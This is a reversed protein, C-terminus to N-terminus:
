DMFMLLFSRKDRKCDDIAKQLKKEYHLKQKEYKELAEPTDELLEPYKIGSAAALTQRFIQEEQFIMLEFCKCIGYEYIQLCKKKATASVRGYASKIETATVNSISIDDIGGLALRIESRLQGVYRSQDTSVANPTIFGVRDSPELNAIVRPVRMGSGPSGNYGVPNRTVPDQKYTSQLTSLDSTFGSQSSISPRQPPADKSSEVIDQKPRSSLLTPNGFFSLNARINKVMEDHAVIQNAIWDFEGSGDTGFADPNNFVEVCPIFKMTNDLVKKNITTFETPNDFSLEQESHTEEITEATIRLRMYRKDTNLGVQAGGFGKNSKVKYPYIVIVEELEGEPSYFTRYSDKDFWYLRYTKQTPRIYFLGKGLALFHDWISDLRADLQNFKIVQQIFDYRQSGFNDQEPYFEVGQRIGFMKMQALHAHILMTDTAGASDRSIAAKLMTDFTSNTQNM